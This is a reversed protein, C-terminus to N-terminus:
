LRYLIHIKGRANLISQLNPDTQTDVVDFIFDLHSNYEIVQIAVPQVRSLSAFKVNKLTLVKAEDRSGSHFPICSLWNIWSDMKKM